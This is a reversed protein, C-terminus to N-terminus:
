DKGEERWLSIAASAFVLSLSVAELFLRGADFHFVYGITQPPRWLPAYHVCPIVAWPERPSGYWPVYTFAALLALLYALFVQRLYRNM